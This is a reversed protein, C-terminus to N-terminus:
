STRPQQRGRAFGIALRVGVMVALVVVFNPWPLARDFAMLVLQFIVLLVTLIAADRWVKSHRSM